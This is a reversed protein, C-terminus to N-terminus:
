YKGADAAVDQFHIDEQGAGATALVESAAPPGSLNATMWGTTSTPLRLMDGFSNSRRRFGIFNGSIIDQISSSM